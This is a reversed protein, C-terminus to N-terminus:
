RSWNLNEEVALCGDSAGGCSRQSLAFWAFDCSTSDALLSCADGLMQAYYHDAIVKRLFAAHM